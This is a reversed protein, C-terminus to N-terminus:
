LMRCLDDIKGKLWDRHAIGDRWKAPLRSYGLRAGLLAGAVAGNTDSDGAELVLDTLIKEFLETPDQDEPFRRTFCYIAAGLCKYTYGIKPPDDLRLSAISTPFCHAFLEDEAFSPIAEDAHHIRSYPSTLTYISLLHKYKMVAAYALRMLAPDSGLSDVVLNDDDASPKPASLAEVFHVNTIEEDDSPELDGRLLSAILSCVIACSTISRPDSHTVKAAAIANAVVVKEDWFSPVGLIATRM